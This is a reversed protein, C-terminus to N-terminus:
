CLSIKGREDPEEGVFLVGNDKYRRLVFHTATSMVNPLPALREAVFMAVEKFTASEVMVLLDFGGSMLYVSSVEQFQMIREAAQEFGFDPQPTVRVEILATASERGARDWDVVARYGRIIGQKEYNAVTKAVEDASLGLMAAIQENTLKADNDLLSLIKDVM